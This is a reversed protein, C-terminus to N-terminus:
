KADISLHYAAVLATLAQDEPTTLMFRDMRDKMLRYQSHSLLPGWGQMDRFEREERERRVAVARRLIYCAAFFDSANALAITSENAATM